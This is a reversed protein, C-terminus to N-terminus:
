GFHNTAAASLHAREGHVRCRIRNSHHESCSTLLRLPLRKLQLAASGSGMQMMAHGGLPLPWASYSMCPVERLVLLLLLIDRRSTGLPDDVLRLLHIWRVTSAPLGRQCDPLLVDLRCSSDRGQPRLRLCAVDELNLGGLDLVGLLREERLVSGRLDGVGLTLDGQPLCSAHGEVLGGRGQYVQAVSFYLLLM